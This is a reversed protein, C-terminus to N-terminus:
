RSALSRANLPEGAITAANLYIVVETGGSQAIGGVPVLMTRGSLRSRVPAMWLAIPPPLKRRAKELKKRSKGAIPEVQLDCRYAEGRYVGADGDEFPDEGRYSFTLRYIEEGDFVKYSGRCPAEPAELAAAMMASLPDPMGPEMAAAISSAKFDSLEFSRTVAPSGDAQWRLTVSKAKGSLSEFSGPTVTREGYRGRVEARYSDSGFLDLIGVTKAAAQIAYQDQQLELDVALTYVRLGKAYFEYQLKLHESAGNAGSAGGALLVAALLCGAM